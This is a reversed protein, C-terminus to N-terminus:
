KSITPAVLGPSAEVGSTAPTSRPDGEAKPSGWGEQARKNAEDLRRKAAAFDQESPIPVAPIDQISGAEQWVVPQLKLSTTSKDGRSESFRLVLFDMSPMSVVGQFDRHHDSNWWHPGMIWMSVKNLGANKCAVVLRWAMTSIMPNVNGVPKLEPCNHENLEAEYRQGNGLDIRVLRLRSISSVTLDYTIFQMGALSSQVNDPWPCNRWAKFHGDAEPFVLFDRNEYRMTVAPQNQIKVLELNDFLSPDAPLRLAPFEALPVFANAIPDLIEFRCTRGPNPKGNEGNSPNAMVVMFVRQGDWRSSLSMGEKHPSITEHGEADIRRIWQNCSCNGYFQGPDSEYDHPFMDTLGRTKWRRVERLGDSLTARLLSFECEYEDPENDKDGVAILVGKCFRGLTKVQLLLPVGEATLTVYFDAGEEVHFDSFLPHRRFSPPQGSVVELYEAALIKGMGVTKEEVVLIRGPQTTSSEITKVYIESPSNKINLCPYEAVLAKEPIRFYLYLGGALLLSVVLSGTKLLNPYRM